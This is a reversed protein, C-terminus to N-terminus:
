EGAITVTSLLHPRLSDFNDRCEVVIFHGNEVAWPACTKDLKWTKGANDRFCNPVLWDPHFSALTYILSEFLKQRPKNIPKLAHETGIKRETGDARSLPFSATKRGEEPELEFTVSVRKYRIVARQPTSSNDVSLENFQHM